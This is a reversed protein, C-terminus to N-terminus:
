RAGVENRATFIQAIVFEILKFEQLWQPSCCGYQFEVLASSHSVTAVIYCFFVLIISGTVFVQSRKSKRHM